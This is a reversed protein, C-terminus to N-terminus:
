DSSNDSEENRDGLDNKAKDLKAIIEKAPNFVGGTQAGCAYCRQSKRYHDLACKECFYHKCKTVIPNKFSDKCMFCKFPLDDEEDSSVKYKNVDEDDNGYTGQEMERELQWGFKYDSRDHMFKCSDGFGCFGTEKFDKCIDPAYDWRVTTRLHAPARQPGTAAKHASGFATDKKEVYKAYNAAGKYVKDDFDVGKAGTKENVEVKRSDNIDRSKEFIAKADRDYSTDIETVATAGQDSPGAKDTGTGKFAVGFDRKPRDDGSNESNESSKSAKRWRKKSKFGSSTSQTLGSKKSRETKVVASEEPESNSDSNSSSNSEHRRRQARQPKKARKFICVKNESMSIQYSNIIVSIDVDLLRM